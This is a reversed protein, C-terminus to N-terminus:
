PIVLLCAQTVSAVGVNCWLLAACSLVLTSFSILCATFGEYAADVDLRHAKLFSNLVLPTHISKDYTVGNEELKKELALLAQNEKEKHARREEESYKSHMKKDQKDLKKYKQQQAKRQKDQQKKQKAEEKQQQKAEKKNNVSGSEM